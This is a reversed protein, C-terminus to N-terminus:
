SWFSCVCSFFGVVNNEDCQETENKMTESVVRARAASEGRTGARKEAHLGGKAERARRAPSRRARPRASGIGRHQGDGGRRRRPGPRGRQRCLSLTILHSHYLSRPPFAAASRRVSEVCRFFFSDRHPRDAGAEDGASKPECVCEKVDCREVCRGNSGAAPADVRTAAPTLASPGAAASSSSYM